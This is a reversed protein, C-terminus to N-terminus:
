RLLRSDVVVTDNISRKLYIPILRSRDAKSGSGGVSDQPRSRESRLLASVAESENLRRAREDRPLDNFAQAEMAYRARMAILREEAIDGLRADGEVHVVVTVDVPVGDREVVGGYTKGRFGKPIAVMGYESRRKTVWYQGQQLAGLLRGEVELRLLAKYFKETLDALALPDDVVQMRNSLRHLEVSLGEANENMHNALLTAQAPTLEGLAMSDLHAFPSTSVLPSTGDQSDGPDAFGLSKGRLEETPASSQPPLEAGSRGQEGSGMKEMSNSAPPRLCGWWIMGAVVGLSVGLSYLVGRTIASM